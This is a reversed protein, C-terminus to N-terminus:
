NFKNKDAIVFGSNSQLIANFNGMLDAIRNGSSFEPIYISM